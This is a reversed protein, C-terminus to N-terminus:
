ILGVKVPRAVIISPILSEKVGIFCSDVNSYLAHLNELKHCRKFIKPETEVIDCNSCRHLKTLLKEDIATSPSEVVQFAFELLLCCSPLVSGTSLDTIDEVVKKNGYILKDCTVIDPIDTSKDIVFEMGVDPDNVCKDDDLSERGSDNGDEKSVFDQKDQTVNETDDDYISDSDSSTKDSENDMPEKVSVPKVETKLEETEHNSAHSKSAQLNKLSHKSKPKNSKKKPVHIDYSHETPKHLDKTIHLDVGGKERNRSIGVAVTKMKIQKSSDPSGEHILDFYAKVAYESDVDIVEADLWRRLAIVISGAFRVFM